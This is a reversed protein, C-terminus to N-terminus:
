ETYKTAASAKAEIGNGVRGFNYGIIAFIVGQLLDPIEQGTVALYAVTLGFITSLTLQMIDETKLNRLRKM